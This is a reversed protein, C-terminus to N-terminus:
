KVLMSECRTTISHQQLFLWPTALFQKKTGISQGLFDTEQDAIITKLMDLAEAATPRQIPDNSRLAELWPLIPELDM